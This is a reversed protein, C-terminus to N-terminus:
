NGSNSCTAETTLTLFGISNAVQAIQTNVAVLDGNTLTLRGVDNGVPAIRISPTSSLTYAHNGLDLTLTDFRVELTGSGVNGPFTVTYGSTELNFLAIDDSDPVSSNWNLPDQFSEGSPAIWNRQVPIARAYPSLLAILILDVLLSACQVRRM